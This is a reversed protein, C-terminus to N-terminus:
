GANRQKEGEQREHRYGQASAAKNDKYADLLSLAFFANTVEASRSSWTRMMGRPSAEAVGTVTCEAKNNNATSLV